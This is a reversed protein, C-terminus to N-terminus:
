GGATVGSPYYKKCGCGLQFRRGNVKLRSTTTSEMAIPFNASRARAVMEDISLPKGDYIAAYVENGLGLAESISLGEDLVEGFIAVNKTACDQIIIFLHEDVCDEGDSLTQKVFGRGYDIAGSM